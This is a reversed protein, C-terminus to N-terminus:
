KSLKKIIKQFSRASTEFTWSQIIKKSERSLSKYFEKSSFVKNIELSLTQPDNYNFVYGNEGDHVLDFSAGAENSSIIPLGAAMAENVVLGWAEHSTPFVFVDGAYYHKFVEAQEKIFGTIIVNLNYEKALSEINEREPGDGVILIVYNEHKINVAELIVKINKWDLLRGTYLLVKSEQSIGYRERIEKRYKEKDEGLSEILKTDVTLFQNFINEPNYNFSKSFYLRSVTGNGFIASAGDIVFKKMLHVLKNEESEIM